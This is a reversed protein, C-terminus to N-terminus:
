YNVNPPNSSANLILFLYLFCNLKSVIVSFETSIIFLIGGAVGGGFGISRAFSSFLGELMILPLFDFFTLIRIFM